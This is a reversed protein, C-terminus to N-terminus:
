GRKIFSKIRRLFKYFLTNRMREIKEISVSYKSIYEKLGFIIKKLETNEGTMLRNMLKEHYLEKELEQIRRTNNGM